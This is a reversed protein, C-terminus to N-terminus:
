LSHHTERSANQTHKRSEYRVIETMEEVFATATIARKVLRLQHEPTLAHHTMRAYRAVIRDQFEEIARQEETIDIYQASM